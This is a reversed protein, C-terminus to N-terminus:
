AKLIYVRDTLKDEPSVVTQNVESVMKEYMSIDSDETKPVLICEHISSPLIFFEHVGINDALRKIAKRDAIASAGRFNSKNSIVYIPALEDTINEEGTIEAVVSLLPKITTEAHNNKEAMSWAINFAIGANKLFEERVKVSFHEGDRNGSIYLYEELGEFNSPRKVMVETGSAQLGTHIHSLIFDKDSFMEIDFDMNSKKYISIMEDAIDETSKDMLEAEEIFDKTYLTIGIKDTKDRKLVIGDKKIGNKIATTSEAVYGRGNLVEIIENRTIM